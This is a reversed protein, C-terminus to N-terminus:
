ELKATKQLKLLNARLNKGRQNTFKEYIEEM